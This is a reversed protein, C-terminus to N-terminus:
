NRVSIQRYPQLKLYVFDGIQIQIVVERASLTRELTDNSAEGPLYPLHIPPPQGYVVEYPTTHTSSHYNTNYWWEALALWQSWTKPIDSCM